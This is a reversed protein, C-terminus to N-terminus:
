VPRHKPGTITDALYDGSAIRRLRAVPRNYVYVWANVSTGGALSVKHLRRVFEGTNGAGTRCGEYLDLRALARGPNKLRYVEGTVRDKRLPSVIMGPYEGIHYLRGQCTAKGLLEGAERLLRGAPHGASGLLTGYVFLCDPKM